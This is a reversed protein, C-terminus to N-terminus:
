FSVNLGFVLRLPNYVSESDMWNGAKKFVLVNDANFYVTASKLQARSVWRKPLDYSVRVNRLRLFSGNQYWISNNTSYFLWSSYNADYINPMNAKDGKAQWMKWASPFVISNTGSFYAGGPDTLSFFTYNSVLHGTEFYWDTSLRFSKYSWTSQIGGFYKPTKNGITRMNLTDAAITSNLGEHDSGDNLRFLPAGNDPNVGVYPIAKYDGIADGPQLSFRRIGPALSNIRNKNYTVNGSLMWSFDGKKIVDARLSLEIGKNVVEGINTMQTYSGQTAPLTVPQVMGASRRHYLDITGGFRSLLSFDLGLSHNYTTEWKINQNALQSIVSGSRSVGNYSSTNSFYTKNLYNGGLDRGSTGYAYRLKLTNVVNRIRQMFQEQDIAWAASLSYFTGYRNNRGFAPSADSRLSGTLTYRQDFRYSGEGFISFMGNDTQSGIPSYAQGFAFANFDGIGTAAGANREGPLMNYYSISNSIGKTRSYEQGAFLTVLHKGFDKRFSATNSTQYTNTMANNLDLTGNADIGAYFPIVSFVGSYLGLKGSEGRPDYYSNSNSLAHTITNSTQLTLFPFPQYKIRVMGLYTENQYRSTNDYTDAEYLVNPVTIAIYPNTLTGTPIDLTHKWNGKEDKPSLWPLYNIPDLQGNLRESGGIVASGSFSISVKSSLTLDTNLKVTKRDNKSQLSAGNERYWGVSGYLRAQNNGTSFSLNVDNFMGKKRLAKGWDYDRNRDEDSYTRVDNIFSAKDPYLDQYEPTADFIGGTYRDMHDTLQTTNMYKLQHPYSEMGTRNSFNFTLGQKGKKTVVVIVGLAARSGYLSTSAADKLVGITEIDEPNMLTNIDVNGMINGDLVILPTTPGISTSGVLTNGRITNNLLGPVKGKLLDYINTTSPVGSLLERGSLQVVSGTLESAKKNSYGTVVVQNLEKAEEIMVVDITNRRHVPEEVPRIGTYSFLITTDAPVHLLYFGKDDTITGRNSGKIRVTIGELPRGNRDSVTGHIMKYELSNEKDFVLVEDRRTIVLNKNRQVFTLDTNALLLNLTSQVTRSERAMSLREHKSVDKITYSMRFGSLEGVMDLGQQLSQNQLGMTIKSNLSQAQAQSFFILISLLATMIKSPTLKEM